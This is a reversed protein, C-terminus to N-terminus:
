KIAWRQFRNNFKMAVLYLQALKDRWDAQIKFHFWLREVINVLRHSQNGGLRSMTREMLNDLGNGAKGFARGAQPLPVQLLETALTIGFWVIRQLALVEIRDQLRGWDFKHAIQLLAAIDAVKSLVLRDEWRDKAAQICLILLLDELAPQAVLRNGFSIKEHREWLDQFVLSCPFATPTLATHVDLCLAQDPSLIQIEWDRTRGLQFGEAVLVARLRKEDGPAILIDLDSCQRASINRYVTEAMLPGKYYLAPINWRALLADLKLLQDKLFMNHVTNQLYVLRLHEVVPAPPKETLGQYLLPMVGHDVALNVLKFWDTPSAGSQTMSTISSVGLGHRVCMLLFRFECGLEQITKTSNFFCM